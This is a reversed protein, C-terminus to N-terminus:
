RGGARASRANCAASATASPASRGRAREPARATPASAHTRMKGDVTKVLVTDDAQMVIKGEVVTGDKLTITDGIALGCSLVVVLSLVYRAM